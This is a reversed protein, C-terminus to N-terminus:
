FLSGGAFFVLIVIFMVHSLRDKAAFVVPDDHMRGRHTIFVMRSLWYLLVACIGWLMEPRSYLETVEPSNVYLAMVMVSVNGSALAMMTILPLDDLQYGRGSLERGSASADVLEAQRKVAALAFFFFTSFALLWVSLEIGTAASGAMVRLAYLAALTCIDIVPRRKLWLSYLTTTLYYLAMVGLFAPGLAVSIAVGTFLLAPAMWTGHVLPLDGSAFPRDRKRPHARDAALDLLDNLVYVSSAVLSFAVFAWISQVLAGTTLAHGAIMPLLVLVNKAWQHPRLARIMPKIIPASQGIHRMKAQADAKARLAPKLNVGVGEAAERWVALDSRSDGFYIYQRAGYRDNLFRAKDRGKLNQNGDSGHAEDFLDIHTAVADVISQDAASVLATRGGKARWARLEDLVAQNYPLSAVKLVTKGALHAKLAARGRTLAAIAGFPATWHATVAAWFSEYLTDTRVLTSDLDCVLVPLDVESPVQGSTPITTDELTRGPAM